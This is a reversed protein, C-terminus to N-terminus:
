AAGFIIRAKSDPKPLQKKEPMSEPHHYIVAQSFNQWMKRDGNETEADDAKIGLHQQLDGLYLDFAAKVFNGWSVAEQRAKQSAIYAVLLCIFPLM